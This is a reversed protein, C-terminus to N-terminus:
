KAAAPKAPMKFRAEDLTPNLEIKDITLNQKEPRGKAGNQISFPFLIGGVEKYDGLISEAEIETGRVMRKSENKIELFSDADLFIHQVDGNKLTLNVRYADSGEVKEKGVLEVKHGKAKYDVLPGDIDAQEQADKLDEPSLPEPDKKGGFPDIQWGNTGDYAQVGIMGQFTFEMRLREPRKLELMVPAEVGPGMTMKGSARLSKVSKLKELGGRAQINKAIIEDITQAQAFTGLGLFAMGWLFKRFM